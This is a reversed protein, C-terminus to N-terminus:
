ARAWRATSWRRTGIGFTAGAKTKAQKNTWNKTESICINPYEKDRLQHVFKLTKFADFWTHMHKNYSQTSTSVKRAAEIAQAAGISQLTQLTSASLPLEGLHKTRSSAM